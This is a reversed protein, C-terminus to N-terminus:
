EISMRNLHTSAARRHNNGEMAKRELAEKLGTGFNRLVLVSYVFTACLFVISVISFVALSEWLQVYPEQTKHLLVQVLKYLFYVMAGVCGLMFTAMMWRQEYRAALHGEVLLLVSFPLAACTIYYEVQTDQLVLWIFQVSFGVWFFVDFKVLCEYIQYVAYMKKIRRDAGLFKYVKWGFEHYIKWGLAIYAVEAVAIVIPIITTLVDIPVSSTSSFSSSAMTLQIEKIQIVAYLLFLANLLALFIFQLTNRAYVADLAMVFQFVHALAFVSLYVPMRSTAVSTDHSAAQDIKIKERVRSHLEGEIALNIATEVLVTAVYLRCPISEPVLKQWLSQAEVKEQPPPPPYNYLTDQDESHKSAKSSLHISLSKQHSHPSQQKLPKGVTFTQHRSNPHYPTGYPDVLDDFDAKVDEEYPPYPHPEHHALENPYSM